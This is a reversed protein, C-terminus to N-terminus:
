LWHKMQQNKKREINKLSYPWATTVIAWCFLIEHLENTEELLVIYVQAIEHLEGGDGRNNGENSNSNGDNNNWSDSDDNDGSDIGWCWVIVAMVYGFHVLLFQVKFVLNKTM